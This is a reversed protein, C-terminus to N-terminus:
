SGELIDTERNLHTYLAAEYPPDAVLNCPHGFLLM